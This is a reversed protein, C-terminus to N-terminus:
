PLLMFQTGLPVPSMAWSKLKSSMCAIGFGPSMDWLNPKNEKTKTAIWSKPCQRKYIDLQHSKAM